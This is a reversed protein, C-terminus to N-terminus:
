ICCSYYGAEGVGVLFVIFLNCNIRPVNSYVFLNSVKKQLTFKMNNMRPGHMM